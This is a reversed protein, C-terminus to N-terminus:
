NEDHQADSDGGECALFEGLKQREELTPKAGDPPMLENVGDPGAAAQEAIHGPYALIGELTDFDHGSPAGHRQEASLTSAHCRTCYKAMFPQVFGQYSVASDPPCSSGPDVGQEESGCGVALVACFLLPFRM